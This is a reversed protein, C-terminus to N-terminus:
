TRAWVTAAEEGSDLEMAQCSADAIPTSNKEPNEHLEVETSRM